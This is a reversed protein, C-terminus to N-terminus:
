DEYSEILNKLHNYLERDKKTKSGELQEIKNKIINLQDDDEISFIKSFDLTDYYRSTTKKTTALQNKKLSSQKTKDIKKTSIKSKTSQKNEVWNNITEIFKDKLEKTNNKIKENIYKEVMYEVYDVTNSEFMERIVQIHQKTPLEIEVDFNLKVTQSLKVKEYEPITNSKTTIRRTNFERNLPRSNTNIENGEEYEDYEDYEDNMVMSPSSQRFSENRIIENNPGKIIMSSEETRRSPGGLTEGRMVKEMSNILNPDVTNQNQFLKLLDDDNDLDFTQTTYTENSFEENTPIMNISNVENFGNKFNEVSVQAGNTFYVMKEDSSSVQFKEGTLSDKRVYEKGNIIEM